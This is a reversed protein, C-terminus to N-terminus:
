GQRRHGGEDMDGENIWIPAVGHFFLKNGQDDVVGPINDRAGNAGIDDDTFPNELVLEVGVARQFSVLSRPDKEVEGLPGADVVIVSEDRNDLRGRDVGHEGQDDGTGSRNMLKIHLIREQMAGERLGDVTTLRSSKNIRHLRIADAEEVLRQITQLHGLIPVVPEDHVDGGQSENLGHEVGVQEDDPTACIRYIQQM